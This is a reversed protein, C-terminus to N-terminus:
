WWYASRSRRMPWVRDGDPTGSGSSVPMGAGRGVNATSVGGSAQPAGPAMGGLRMGVSRRCAKLLRLGARDPHASAPRLLDREAWRDGCDLLIAHVVDGGPGFRKDPLTGSLRSARAGSFTRLVGGSGWASASSLAEM